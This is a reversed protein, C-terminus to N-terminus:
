VRNWDFLSKQGSGYVKLAGKEGVANPRQFIWNQWATLRGFVRTVMNEPGNFRLNAEMGTLADPSMAVREEIAIRTEDAWDIDDPNSTVLGLAFAADADLPQGQQAKVAALPAEEEYFRRQLRSQGTAMPYTGWNLAGVTIKPAKAADDPLALQYSRDCALALELYTGAFCSGEDILAFLSRSSVDLRSLTRRLLGRTERVFWHDANAELAADMALVAAADGETRILWTGIELENTRMELIADDLETRYHALADVDSSLLFWRDGDLADLYREFIQASLADDLRQTRYHVRSLYRMTWTAAEAQEATPKLESLDVKRPKADATGLGLALLSIVLIRLKM